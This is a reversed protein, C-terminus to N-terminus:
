LDAPSGRGRGVSSKARQQSAIKNPAAPTISSSRRRGLWAAPVPTNRSRLSIPSNALKRGANRNGSSTPADVSFGSTTWPSSM